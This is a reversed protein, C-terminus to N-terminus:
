EFHQPFVSRLYSMVANMAKERSFSHPSILAWQWLGNTMSTLANAAAAATIQRYAGDKIIAACLQEVVDDYYRDSEYCIKRYAPRAKAEGWFAFWLALKKRDCISPKFDLAMAALLKDAPSTGARELTKDFQTKYDDALSRLTENLLNDKSQFHLNVIGQSLGAESAVDGLTTSSMGKRAICNMTADILQQRRKERSIARRSTIAATPCMAWGIM